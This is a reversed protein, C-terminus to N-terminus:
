NKRNLRDQRERAKAPWRSKIFSLVAWIDDNGLSDAFGPMGSKFGKPALAQGGKAIYDYLLQDPHHWTHGTEDHPPAPLSGDPNRQRWNPQGQLNKGHCSACAKAYLVEGRSVLEPNNHDTGSLGFFSPLYQNGGVVALVVVILLALYSITKKKM